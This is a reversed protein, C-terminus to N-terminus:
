PVERKDPTHLWRGEQSIVVSRALNALQRAALYQQRRLM